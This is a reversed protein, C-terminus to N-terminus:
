ESQGQSHVYRFSFGILVAHNHWVARSLRDARYLNQILPKEWERWGDGSAVPSPSHRHSRSLCCGHRENMRKYVFAKAGTHKATIHIYRARVAPYAVLATIACAIVTWLARHEANQALVARVGLEERKRTSIKM